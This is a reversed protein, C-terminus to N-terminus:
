MSGSDISKVHRPMPHIVLGHKHYFHGTTEDGVNSPHRAEDVEPQEDRDGSEHSVEDDV